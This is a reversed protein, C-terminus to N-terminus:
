AQPHETRDIDPELFVYTATPVAARLRAEADDIGAAIDAGTDSKGIAIKAGVLLEDPGVHLTRVHIVRDVLPSSALAARIAADEEPLASEGVLMAAMEFALFVAIVVLLTGVAMAGLGDWRGDGTVVALSVGCLAFLLGVLAGLDELLIVPLEPQRADRLFRFLSRKGRARNAERVATRFSFGELVIAIGLVLFAIWADSLDEPHQFKHFGEYLSFLGGVLFLVIAVIFGYVYRRRGYGFPHKADPAKKSRKNGVLLLVQNGSDAVSHIAESLMSSSGTFAFAVFKSIAIGLNALLAAVVARLGGETSV